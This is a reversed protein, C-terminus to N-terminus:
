ANEVNEKSCDGATEGRREKRAFLAKVKEFFQKRSPVPDEGGRSFPNCRLIRWLAMLPGIIIGWEKVAAIAYESCTPTFRCCAGGKLPSIYKRYLRIPFTFIETIWDHIKYLAKRIM